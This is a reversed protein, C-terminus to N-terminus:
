PTSGEGDDDPDEPDVDPEYRSSYAAERAPNPLLTPPVIAVVAPPLEYAHTPQRKFAVEPSCPTLRYIAAGGHFIAPLLTGNFLPELALFKAGFREVEAVRGILTTHGFLEVIAYDGEPYNIPAADQTAETTTDSMSRGITAAGIERQLLEGLTAEHGALQEVMRRRAARPDCVGLQWDPRAIESRLTACLRYLMAMREITSPTAERYADHRAHPDGTMHSM